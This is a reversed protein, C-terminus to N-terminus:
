FNRKKLLIVNAIKFLEEVIEASLYQCFSKSAIKIKEFLM